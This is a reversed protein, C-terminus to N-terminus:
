RCQWENHSSTQEHANTHKPYRASIAKPIPINNFIYLPLKNVRLNRM